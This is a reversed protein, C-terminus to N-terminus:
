GQSRNFALHLPNAAYNIARVLDFDVDNPDFVATNRLAQILGFPIVISRYGSKRPNMEFVSNVKGANTVGGLALRRADFSYTQAFVSLSSLSLVVLLGLTRLVNKAFADALVQYKNLM